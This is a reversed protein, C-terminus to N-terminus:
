VLIAPADLWDAAASAAAFRDVALVVPANVAAVRAVALATAIPDESDDSDEVTGRAATDDRRGTAAPVSRLAADFEAEVSEALDARVQRELNAVRDELRLRREQTDRADRAAREASALRQEAAIRETEAESLRRATRRLEALADDDSEGAERLTEIRGRLTAVDERLRAEDDGAEAVARRAAAPDVTSATAEALRERAAALAARKPSRHGRSRAADALAARRDVRMRPQVLGVREHVTGPTACAIRVGAGDPDADDGDAGDPD